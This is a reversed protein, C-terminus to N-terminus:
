RAGGLTPDLALAERERAAAEDTRGAAALAGALAHRLAASEPAWRLAESGWAVADAARGSAALCRVQGVAAAVMRPELRLAREFHICADAARGAALLVEAMNREAEVYGPDIALAREYHVLADATEGRVAQVNALNNHAEAFSPRIRVADRYAALAEDYRGLSALLNGLNSRVEAHTPDADAGRRYTAIAEETRGLAGLALARDNLLDAADPEIALGRDFLAIAERAQGQRYLDYGLNLYAITASPNKALTDRWLTAADQFALCRSWTAAALVLTVAVPVAPPIRRRLSVAGGVALALLPISALYAFHDAVYSYRMPYVDVLGLAPALTMGYALVAAAPGRGLRPILALLGIGVVATALPFLWQWLASADLTWRPYIFVLPWPLVLKAAYFWPVRGAILLRELPTQNWYSGVAGVHTRELWATVSGLGLGLAFFPAMAVVDRMGVRGTRWWVVVLFVAPLTSAVTKSLLAGVFCALGLAYWRGSRGGGDRERRWRVLALFALLYLLGSLVNKRETVWAVSEVHMPHVAFLAAVLWPAPLALARALLWLVVASAAHLAVNLAHYAAPDLGHLQYDLWLTTFTLPYYQAVAGPETWIRRLGDATRLAANATVYSDDDWVWGARFAPAYAVATLVVLGLAALAPAVDRRPPEPRHAV